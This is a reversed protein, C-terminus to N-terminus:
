DGKERMTEGKPTKNSAEQFQPTLSVSSFLAHECPFMIKQLHQFQLVHSIKPREGGM